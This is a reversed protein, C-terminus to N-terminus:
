SKSRLHQPLFTYDRGETHWKRRPCFEPRVFNDRRKTRAPHTLHIAGPVRPQVANDGDFDKRIVGGISGFEAFPELAFGPRNGAQIMRETEALPTRAYRLEPFKFVENTQNSRLPM